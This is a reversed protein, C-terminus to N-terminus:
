RGAGIAPRAARVSHRFPKPPGLPTERRIPGPILAARLAVPHPDQVCAWEWTVGADLGESQSRCPQVERARGSPCRDQCSGHRRREPQQRLLLGSGRRVAGLQEACYTTIGQIGGNYKVVITRNFAVKGYLVITVTGAVDLNYTGIPKGDAYVTVTGTPMPIGPIPNVMGVAFRLRTNRGGLSAPVTSPLPLYIPTITITTAATVPTLPNPVVSITGPGSTSSGHSGGSADTYTATFVNNGSSLDTVSPAALGNANVPATGWSSAM